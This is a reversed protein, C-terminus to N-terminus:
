HNNNIKKIKDYTRLGSMGLLVMILELMNDSPILPLLEVGEFWVKIIWNGIPCLLYTYGLSLTSIWAVGPRWSRQFWNGKAEVLNIDMHKKSIEMIDKTLMAEVEVRIEEITRVTDADKNWDPLLKDVVKNMIDSTMKPLDLLSLLSM